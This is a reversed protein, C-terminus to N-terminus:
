YRLNQPARWISALYQNRVSRGRLETTLEVELGRLAHDKPVFFFLGTIGWILV